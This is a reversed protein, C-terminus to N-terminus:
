INFVDTPLDVSILSMIIKFVRKFTGPQSLQIVWLESSDHKTNMSIKMANRGPLRQQSM